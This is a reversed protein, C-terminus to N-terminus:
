LYKPYSTQDRFDGLSDQCSATKKQIKLCIEWLTILAWMCGNIWVDSVVNWCDTQDLREHKYFIRLEQIDLFMHLSHTSIQNKIGLRYNGEYMCSCTNFIISNQSNIQLIKQNLFLQRFDIFNYKQLFDKFFNNILFIHIRIRMFFDRKWIKCCKILHYDKILCLIIQRTDTRGDTVSM